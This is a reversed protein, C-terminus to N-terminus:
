ADHQGGGHHGDDTMPGVGPRQELFRSAAEVSADDKIRQDIWSIRHMALFSAWRRM